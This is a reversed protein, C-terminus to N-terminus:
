SMASRPSRGVRKALSRLSASGMERATRSAAIVNASAGSTSLALLVDGARGIGPLQRAFATGYGYDNSIATLSSADVTLAM